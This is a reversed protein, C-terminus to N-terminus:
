CAILTLKKKTVSADCRECAGGVVQENALVTQCSPCWNVASDKRYALGREYMQLFFWQNWHYYEPDCTNLVRDWDFSCAYRRMSAKQIAINEYTWIQPS